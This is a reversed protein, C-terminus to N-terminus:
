QRVCTFQDKKYAGTNIDTAVVTCGQGDKSLQFAKLFELFNNTFRAMEAEAEDSLDYDLMWTKKFHALHASSTRIVGNEDIVIPLVSLADQAEPNDPSLRLVLRGAEPGIDVLMHGSSPAEADLEELGSVAWRGFWGFPDNEDFEETTADPETEPTMDVSDEEEGEVFIDEEPVDELDVRPMSITVTIVSGEPLMTGVGPSVSLVMLPEEGEKAIAGPAPTATFFGDKNVLGIYAQAKMTGFSPVPRLTAPYRIPTVSSFMEVQSDAAPETAFFEGPTGGDPITDSDVAASVALKVGALISRAEAETKAGAISPVSVMPRPGIKTLSVASGAPLKDGAIHSATHINGPVMAEQDAAVEKGYAPVLGVATLATNAAEYNMGIVTPVDVLGADPDEKPAAGYMTVTVPSWVRLKDGPPPVSDIITNPKAGEKLDVITFPGSLFLKSAQLVKGAETMNLGIIEKPVTTVACHDPMKKSIKDLQALLEPQTLQHCAGDIVRYMPKNLVLSRLDAAKQDRTTQDCNLHATRVDELAAWREARQQYSYNALDSVLFEPNPTGDGKDHFFAIRCQPSINKPSVLEMAKVISICGQRTGIGEHARTAHVYYQSQMEWLKRAKEDPGDKGTKYTEIEDYFNILETLRETQSEIFGLYMNYNGKAQDGSGFPLSVLRRNASMFITMNKQAQRYGEGYAACARDTERRALELKEHAQDYECQDTHYQSAKWATIRPGDYAEQIGQIGSNWTSNLFELASGGEPLREMSALFVSVAAEVSKIRDPSALEPIKAAFGYWDFLTGAGDVAAKLTVKTQPSAEDSADILSRLVCKAGATLVEKGAYSAVAPNTLSGIALGAWKEAEDDTMNPKDFNGTNPNYHSPACEGYVGALLRYAYPDTSIKFPEPMCAPNAKRVWEEFKTDPRYEVFEEAGASGITLGLSLIVTLFVSVILRWCFTIESM